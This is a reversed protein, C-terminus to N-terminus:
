GAGRGSLEDLSTRRLIRGVRTVRRDNGPKFRANTQPRGTITGNVYDHAFQRHVQDGFSDVYMSRFKYLNFIQGGRGVRPQVFIVPGPSDLKTCLAVLLLLPSLILLLSASLVIDVLRKFLIYVWQTSTEPASALM